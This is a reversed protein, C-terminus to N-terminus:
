IKTILIKSNDMNLIKKQIVYDNYKEKPYTGKNVQIKRSVKIEEGNKV